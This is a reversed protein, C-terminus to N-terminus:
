KALEQFAPLFRDLIQKAAIDIKEEDTLEAGSSESREDAPQAVPRDADMAISQMFVVEDTLMVRSVRFKM